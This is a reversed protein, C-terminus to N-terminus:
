NSKTDYNSITLYQFVEKVIHSYGEQDGKELKHPVEYDVLLERINQALTKAENENQGRGKPNYPKVREIFYNLNTYKNFEYMVIENFMEKKTGTLTNYVISNWLPADTVVVDVDSELRSMKFHQKGFIYFQDNFVKKNNEWTKDKAFETVLECNINNMKLKSFIYAAGTSKGSGPAGFLNIVIM